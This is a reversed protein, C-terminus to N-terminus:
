GSFLEMTEATSFVGDHIPHLSIHPHRNKLTRLVSEQPWAVMEILSSFRRGETEARKTYAIEAEPMPLREDDKRLLEFAIDVDGLETAQSVYSGFALLRGVKYIEDPDNNIAAARKILGDVLEDARQRSIPKLATALALAGGKFTLRFLQEGGLLRDKEVYGEAVLASLVVEAEEDAIKLLHALDDVLLTGNLRKFAARLDFAPVGCITQDRSIRLQQEGQNTLTTSRMRTQPYM